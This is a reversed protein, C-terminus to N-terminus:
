GSLRRELLTQLPISEGDRGGEGVVLRPEHPAVSAGTIRASLGGPVTLLYLNGDTGVALSRDAKLYWGRLGTRYPGGGRYSRATLREAPLGREQARQVFDAILRRAEAAERERRQRAADAHSAIARERQQRWSAENSM